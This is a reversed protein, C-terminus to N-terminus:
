SSYARNCYINQYQKNFNTTLFGAPCNEYREVMPRQTTPSSLRYGGCSGCYGEVVPQKAFKAYSVGSTIVTSMDTNYNKSMGCYVNQMANNFNTNNIAYRNADCYNSM